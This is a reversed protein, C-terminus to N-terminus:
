AHGNKMRDLHDYIDLIKNVHWEWTFHQLLRDNVEEMSGRDLELAKKVKEAIERDDLPDEVVYGNKGEELMEAAGCIRTTVVPIGAALAELCVNGFPEYITPFVLVDSAQYYKEVDSVPGVFHVAPGVGLKVALSRYSAVSDKGVVILHTGKGLRAMARIAAAVGKRRFGSGVFILVRDEPAINLTKRILRSNEIAERSRFRDTEVPNYIVRIKEDPVGYLKMIEEKGRKSNAIIMRYNGEAFIRGEIWLLAFNLPNFANFIIKYWPDIKKRQKLWERHCGDGARFVDQYITREFSHIIDFPESKLLRRANLAFSLVELVSLGTVVPVHHFTIGRPGTGPTEKKKWGSSFLHIEHESAALCQALSALYREAGGFDSYKQRVLAIKMPDAQRDHHTSGAEAPERPM